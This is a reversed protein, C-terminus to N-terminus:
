VELYGPPNVGPSLTDWRESIMEYEVNHLYGPSTGKARTFTNSANM